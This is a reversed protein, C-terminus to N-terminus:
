KYPSNLCDQVGLLYAGYLDANKGTTANFEQIAERAFDVEDHYDFLLEDLDGISILLTDNYREAVKQLSYDIHQFQSIAEVVTLEDDKMDDVYRYISIVIEPVADNTKYYVDVESGPFAKLFTSVFAEKSVEEKVQELSEATKIGSYEFAVYTIANGYDDESSTIYANRTLVDGIRAKDLIKISESTTNKRVDHAINRVFHFLKDTTMTM